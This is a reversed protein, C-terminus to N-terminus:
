RVGKLKTYERKLKLIRKCLNNLSWLFCQENAPTFSKQPYASYKKPLKRIGIAFDVIRLMDDRCNKMAARIETACENKAKKDRKIELPSNNAQTPQKENFSIKSKKVIINTTRKM